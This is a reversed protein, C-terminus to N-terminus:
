GVFQEMETLKASNQQIRRGLDEKAAEVSGRLSSMADEDKRKESLREQMERVSAQINTVREEIKRAEDQERRVAEACALETAKTRALAESLSVELGTFAAETKPREKLLSDMNKQISAILKNHTENTSNVVNKFSELDNLSLESKVHDSLTLTFFINTYRQGRLQTM